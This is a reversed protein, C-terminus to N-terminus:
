NNKKLKVMMNTFKATVKRIKCDYKSLQLWTIASKSFSCDRSQLNGFNCDFNSIESCTKFNATVHSCSEVNQLWLEFHSQLNWFNCDYNSIYGCFTSLQMWLEFNSQLINFTATMNQFTVAFHQFNCDYNLFHTCFTILQLWLEFNSQLINFTATLNRWFDCDRSQMKSFIATM